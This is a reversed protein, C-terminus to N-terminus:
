TEGGVSRRKIGEGKWEIWEEKRGIEPEKGKPGLAQTNEENPKTEKRRWM